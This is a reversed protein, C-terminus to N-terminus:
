SAARVILDFRELAMITSGFFRNLAQADGDFTRWREVIICIRNRFNSDFEFAENLGALVEVAAGTALARDAPTGRARVLRLHQLVKNTLERIRQLKEQAEPNEWM